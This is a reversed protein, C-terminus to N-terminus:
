RTVRVIWLRAAEEVGRVTGYVTLVILACYAAVRGM